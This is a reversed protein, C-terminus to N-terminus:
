TVYQNHSFPLVVEGQSNYIVQGYGGDKKLGALIYGDNIVMTTYKASLLTDCGKMVGYFTKYNKTVSVIKIADHSCKKEEVCSSLCM